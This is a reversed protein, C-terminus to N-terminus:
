GILMMSRKKIEQDCMICQSGISKVCRHCVVSHKCPYFTIDSLNIKCALCIRNLTELNINSERVLENKYDDTSQSSLDNNSESDNFNFTPDNPFFRADLDIKLQMSQRPSQKPSPNSSKINSQVLERPIKSNASLQESRLRRELSPLIANFKIPELGGQVLSDDFDYREKQTEQEQDLDFFVIRKGTQLSICHMSAFLIEAGSQALNVIVKVIRENILQKLNWFVFTVDNNIDYCALVRDQDGRVLKIDVLSGAFRLNKKNRLQETDYLTVTGSLKSAIVYGASDSIELKQIDKKSKHFQEVHGSDKSYRLVISSESKVVPGIMYIDKGNESVCFSLIRCLELYEIKHTHTQKIAYDIEIISTPASQIFVASNTMAVFCKEVEYITTSKKIGMDYIIVKHDTQLVLYNACKSSLIRKVQQINNPYFDITKNLDADIKCISIAVRNPDKSHLAVYMKKGEQDSSACDINSYEKQVGILKIEEKSNM